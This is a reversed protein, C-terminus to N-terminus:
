GPVAGIIREDHTPVITEGTQVVLFDEANWDGNLWRDLLSLDGPVAEYQWGRGACIGQVQAPLGLDQTFEFDILTGHSYSNAWRGMEEFLYRAQEEGYKDVWKQYDSNAREANSTPLFCQMAETFEKGRRRPCELWGSTYYYTGPHSAFMEQYREKSGLFFTICDHARPVVLKTHTAKLGTLINSCLGYGLLIADYKGEPLADIREQIDTRGLAPNEHHGQTLFDVDFLHKSGAVLHCIERLAIECAIIRCFM